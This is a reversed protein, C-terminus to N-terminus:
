APELFLNAFPDVGARWGPPIVTTSDMQAVIAPGQIRAGPTLDTRAYVPTPLPKDFWVERLAVHSPKRSRGRIRAGLEIGETEAPRITGKVGSLAFPSPLVLKLRLTVVEITRSPDAHGYRERHAEHFRPLFDSPALSGAPVALEYSQGAYRMDLITQATLSILPFGESELESQGRAILEHQLDALHPHEARGEVGVEAASRHPEPHAPHPTPSPRPTTDGTGAGTTAAQLGRGVDPGNHWEAPNLRLLAPAALDKVIPATVMGLASLVGPYPPVLVRPIRLSEAIGCAHLPGAGGFAVLTFLRPDHGREVSVIRLAREMNANAVRLVAMAIRHPDGGFPGAIRRLAAASLDPRLTMRGDLFHEPAIRGLVVHADTVTPESGSGYCAPGPDAGASEPGVRLAGGEDIRAISGGGAGVSLVDVTPGRIPLEGVLTEERELIRGPCLSVDTSTGGMDLTVIRDVGAQQALAFAGAVGGAPGSLATRVALRGASQASISGGNSSMLRLREVGNRRLDDDLHSLYRSMVPAVYANAVTTSTREYERHEPLVEHSTSVPIGRRRAADAVTREHEPNLFSFLFCVALSEIGAEELRDLLAEVEAPDLPKLVSGRHDLRENAELRLDDPVLPPERHPSFDYLKPRTQRGIVLVDRFGRTTILATRAGRREIIANTAVTSGHVVELNSTPSQLSSVLETLGELIARAPDDPTSPHKDVTVTGDDTILYFDTFTGGTDVGLIMPTTYLPSSLLLVPPPFPVLLTSLFPTHLPTCGRAPPGGPPSAM